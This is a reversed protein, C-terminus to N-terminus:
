QDDAVCFKLFYVIHFYEIIFFSVLSYHTIMATSFQVLILNGTFHAM